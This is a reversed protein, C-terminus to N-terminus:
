SSAQGGRGKRTAPHISLMSRKSALLYRSRRRLIRSSIFAAQTRDLKPAGRSATFRFIASHNRSGVEVQPHKKFWATARGCARQNLCADGSVGSGM